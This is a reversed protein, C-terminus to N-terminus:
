NHMKRKKMKGQGVAPATAAGQANRADEGARVESGPITAAGAGKGGGMQASALHTSVLLGSVIIAASLRMPYGKKYTRYIWHELISCTGV